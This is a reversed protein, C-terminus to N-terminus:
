DNVQEKNLEGAIVFAEYEEPNKRLRRAIQVLEQREDPTRQMWLLTGAAVADCTWGDEALMDDFDNAWQEPLPASKMQTM